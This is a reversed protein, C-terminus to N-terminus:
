RCRGRHIHTRWGRRAAPPHADCHHFLAGGVAAGAEIDAADRGLRQQVRRFGILLGPMTEGVHADLHRRLEIQLLHESELILADVPVHLPHLKQKLLVLDIRKLARRLDGAGALDLDRRILAAGLRHLRLIDNDGGPGVHRLDGPDLDVLLLDDGRCTRQFETRHRLVQDHNAAAIDPQLQPRDPPPEPRCHHNDLKEVANGRAHITVYRLVELTDELFLAHFELKAM